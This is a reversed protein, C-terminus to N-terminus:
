WAVTSLVRWTSIIQHHREAETWQQSTTYLLSPCQVLCQLNWNQVDYMTGLGGFPPEFVCHGFNSCYAAIVRCRYSIPQWNSNNVLLFDCVPKWNTGVEIVKFLTIARIKRKWRIQNSQTLFCVILAIVGSLTMSTPVPIHCHNFISRYHGHINYWQELRGSKAMVLVGQLATEAIASSSTALAELHTNGCLVHTRLWQSLRTWKKSGSLMPETPWVISNTWNSGWFLTQTPEHGMELSYQTHTLANRITCM